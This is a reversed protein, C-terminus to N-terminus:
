KDRSFFGSDKKNEMVPSQMKVEEKAQEKKIPKPIAVKEEKKVYEATKTKKIFIEALVEPIDTGVVYTEGAIYTNVKIGNPSGKTTKLMKIKKM